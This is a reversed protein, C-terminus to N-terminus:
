REIRASAWAVRDGTPSGDAEVMFIIQVSKGEYDNLPIELNLVRKNCQKQWEGLNRLNGGERVRIRFIVQGEGCTGDSEALFALNVKLTDGRQVTYAPFTGSISGNQAQAPLTVLVRGSARGNELTASELIAAAGNTHNLDGNFTIPLDDQTGDDGRWEAQSAQSLFDYAIGGPLIVEISAWFTQNAQSGVGFLIGNQARLQWESRYTGPTPPATLEVSLDITENPQVTRPLPIVAPADMREGSTYVLNYATTWACTGSNQIRWTKTFKEGPAFTAGDPITVDALFTARNCTDPTPVATPPQPPTGTVASIPTSAAPTPTDVSPPLTITPALTNAAITKQAQLTQAAQTYMGDIGEPPKATANPFNCASLLLLLTLILIRKNTTALM